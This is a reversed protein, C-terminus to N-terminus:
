DCDPEEEEEEEEAAETEQSGQTTEGTDSQQDSTQAWAPCTAFLLLLALALGLKPLQKM